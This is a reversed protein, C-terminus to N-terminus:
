QAEDPIITIKFITDKLGNNGGVNVSGIMSAIGNHCGGESTSNQMM